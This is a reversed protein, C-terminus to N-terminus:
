KKEIHAKIESLTTGCDMFDKCAFLKIGWDPIWTNGNQVEVPMWGADDIYCEAWAHYIQNGDPMLIRGIIFRGPIGANRVLALFLNTYESCTGTKLHLTELASQTCHNGGSIQKALNNDYKICSSVFKLASKIFDFTYSIGHRLSDSIRGIEPSGCEILKTPKLYETIDISYSANPNLHRSKILEFRDKPLNTPHNQIEIEYPSQDSIIRKIKQPFSNVAGIDLKDAKILYYSLKISDVEQANVANSVIQIIWLM